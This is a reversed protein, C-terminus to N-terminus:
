DGKGGTEAAVIDARERRRCYTIGELRPDRKSPIANIIECDVVLYNLAPM